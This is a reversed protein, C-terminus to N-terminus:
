GSVIVALHRGSAQGDRRYSFFREADCRTCGPVVDINARPLGAAMLQLILLSELAVHPKEPAGAQVRVPLPGAEALQQESLAARAGGAAATLADAVDEGVEFCCARIHPFLAAILRGPEAHVLGRLAQIGAPVVGAACGRWGAHLAAVGRSLPDAVLIPVCDATRVSVTRGRAALGDGSEQRVRDPVDGQRLVRVTDGHVQQLEFSEGPGYGVAAAFRRLNENVHEPRDGVSQGLNLSAYPGGSVGGLRTSFGHRFGHQSLNPARLVSSM